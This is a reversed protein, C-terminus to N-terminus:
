FTFTYGLFIVYNAFHGPTTFDTGTIESAQQDTPAKVTARAVPITVFTYLFSTKFKYQLGPEISFIHGVRRLGDSKGILDHSPVGEYRLGLAGVLKDMTYDVGARM